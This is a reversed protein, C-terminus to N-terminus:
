IPQDPGCRKANGAAIIIAIGLADKARSLNAMDSVRGRSLAVPWMGIHKGDDRVVRGMRRRKHMLIWDHGDRQWHLNRALESETEPSITQM